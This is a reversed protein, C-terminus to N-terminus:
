PMRLSAPMLPDTRAPAVGASDPSGVADPCATGIRATPRKAEHGEPQRGTIMSGLKFRNGGTLWCSLHDSSREDDAASLTKAADGRMTGCSGCSPSLGAAHEHM